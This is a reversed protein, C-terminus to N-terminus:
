YRRVNKINLKRIRFIGMKDNGKVSSEINIRVVIVGFTIIGRTRFKDYLNFFDELARNGMNRIPFLALHFNVKTPLKQYIVSKFM